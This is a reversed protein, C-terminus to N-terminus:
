TNESQILIPAEKEMLGEYFARIRPNAIDVMSVIFQFLKSNRVLVTDLYTPTDRIPDGEWPVIHMHYTGLVILNERDCMDYCHKVELPDMVWGRKSLPTKSPVAHQAMLRDMYTKYPEVSRVNNMGPLIHTVQVLNENQTGAIIGYARKGKFEGPLYHCALKRKCHTVIEQWRSEPLIIRSTCALSALNREGKVWRRNTNYACDRRGQKPIGCGM